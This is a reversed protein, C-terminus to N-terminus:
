CYGAIDSLDFRVTVDLESSTVISGASPEVVCFFNSSSAKGEVYFREFLSVNELFNSVLVSLFNSLFGLRPVGADACRFTDLGGFTM